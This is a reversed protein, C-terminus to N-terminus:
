WSLERRPHENLSEAWDRLLQKQSESISDPLVIRLEAILDGQPRGAPRIGMGKLRLLRGSSSNPPVTVSITGHPTPVDIKAGLVAERISVPVVLHLNSGRREFHPHAAVRVTVLLDGRNGRRDAAGQGRLRLTQGSEIGAPIKLTINQPAAGDRALQLQHQGGLVATNFPITIQEATQPPPEATRSGAGSRGGSRGRGQMGFQRLMEEFSAGGAGGQGFLDELDFEM